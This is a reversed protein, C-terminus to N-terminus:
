IIRDHYPQSLPTGGKSNILDSDYVDYGIEGRINIRLTDFVTPTTLHKLQPKDRCDISFSFFSLFIHLYVM